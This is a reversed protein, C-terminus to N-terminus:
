RDWVIKEKEIWYIESRKKVIGSGYVNYSISDTSKKEKKLWIVNEGKRKM